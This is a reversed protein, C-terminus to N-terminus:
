LECSDSIGTKRCHKKKRRRTDGVEEKEQKKKAIGKEQIWHRKKTLKKTTKKM